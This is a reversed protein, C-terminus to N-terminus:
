FIFLGQQLWNFYAIFHPCLSCFQQIDPGSCRLQCVPFSGARPLFYRNLPRKFQEYLNLPLFTLATYKSNTVQSAAYVASTLSM